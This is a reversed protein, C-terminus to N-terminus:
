FLSKLFIVCIEKDGTLILSEEISESNKYGRTVNKLNIRIGYLIDDTYAGKYIM